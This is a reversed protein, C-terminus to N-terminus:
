PLGCVALIEVALGAGGKLAVKKGWLSATLLPWFWPATFASGGEVLGQSIPGIFASGAIEAILGLGIM